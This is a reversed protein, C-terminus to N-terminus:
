GTIDNYLQKQLDAQVQMTQNFAQIAQQVTQLIKTEFEATHNQVGILDQRQANEEAVQKQLRQLVGKKLLYPDNDPKPKGGTNTHHLKLGAEHGGASVGGLSDSAAAHQGLLEIYAQTNNRAKQVAKAGKECEYQVHKQRDKIEKHLRDLIPLVTSKLEVATEAHSNSLRTTNARVHEFWAAVGGVSQHFHHGERLPEDVTKLVKQYEKSLTKHLSETQSIYAELYGVAHKWARLREVLLAGVDGTEPPIAHGSATTDMTGTRSAGSEVPYKESM